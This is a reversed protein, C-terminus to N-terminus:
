GRKADMVDDNGTVRSGQGQAYCTKAPTWWVVRPLEDENEEGELKQWEDIRWGGRLPSM